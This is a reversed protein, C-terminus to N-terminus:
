RHCFSKIVGIVGIGQAVFKNEKQGNRRNILLLVFVNKKSIFSGKRVWALKLATLPCQVISVPELYGPISKEIVFLYNM